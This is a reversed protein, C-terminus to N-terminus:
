HTNSKHSDVILLTSLLEVAVLLWALTHLHAQALGMILSSYVALLLYSHSSHMVRYAYCPTANM